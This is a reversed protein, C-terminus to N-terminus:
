KIRVFNEYVLVVTEYAWETGASNFDPGSYKRPYCMQLEWSAAVTGDQKFADIQVRRRGPGSNWKNGGEGKYQNTNSYWDWVDKDNSSVYKITVESNKELTPTAQWVHGGHQDCGVPDMKSAVPSETQIGKIDRIVKETIQDAQWYFRCQTLYEDPKAM